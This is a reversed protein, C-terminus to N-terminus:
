IQQTEIQRTEASLEQLLSPSLDGVIAYLFDGQKWIVASEGGPRTVYLPAEGAVELGMTDANTIQYFSAMTEGMQYVFRAGEAEGFFCANGGMLEVQESAVELIETPMAVEDQLGQVIDAPQSTPVMIKYNDMAMSIDHDSFIHEVSHWNAQMLDSSSAMVLPSAVNTPQEAKLTTILADMEQIQATAVQLQGSMQITNFVSVIAVAVAVGAIWEKRSFWRLRRQRYGSLSTVPAALERTPQEMNDPPAMNQIHQFLHGKLHSPPSHPPRDLSSQEALHGITRQLEEVDEELEPYEQRLRNFTAMEDADLNRLAYGATLEQIDGSDWVRTM